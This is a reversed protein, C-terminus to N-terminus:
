FSLIKDAKVRASHSVTFTGRTSGFVKKAESLGPFFGSVVLLILLVEVFAQVKKLVKLNNCYLVTKVFTM